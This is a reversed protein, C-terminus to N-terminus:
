CRRSSDPEEAVGMGMMIVLVSPLPGFSSLNSLMSTVIRRIGDANLLNVVAVEDGTSPNIVKWGLSAGIASLILILVGMFIFLMAPDPLKNGIAELRNLWGYPEKKKIAKEGSM